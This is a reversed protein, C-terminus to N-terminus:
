TRAGGIICRGNARLGLRKRLRALDTAFTPDPSTVPRSSWEVPDHPMTARVFQWLADVAVGGQEARLYYIWTGHRETTLIGGRRLVALHRSLQYQALELADAFECVCLPCDSAAILRMIRVRIPDALARNLGAITPAAIENNHCGDYSYASM